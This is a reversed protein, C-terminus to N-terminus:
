LEGRGCKIGNERWEAEVVNAVVGKDRKGARCTMNIMKCIYAERQLERGRLLASPPGDKQQKQSGLAATTRM